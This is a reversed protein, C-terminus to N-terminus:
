TIALLQVTARTRITNAIWVWLSIVVIVLPAGVGMYVNPYSLHANHVVFCLYYIHSSSNMIFTLDVLPFVQPTLLYRTWSFCLPSVLLSLLVMFSVIKPWEILTFINVGVAVATWVSTTVLMPIACRFGPALEQSTYGTTTVPMAYQFFVSFLGSAGAVLLLLLPCCSAFTDALAYAALGHWGLCWHVFYSMCWGHVQRVTSVNSAGWTLIAAPPVLAVLLLANASSFGTQFMISCTFLAAMVHVAAATTYIYTVVNNSLYTTPVYPPNPM